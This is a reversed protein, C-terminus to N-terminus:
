ADRIARRGRGAICRAGVRWGADRRMLGRSACYSPREFLEAVYEPMGHQPDVQRRAADWLHHAVFKLALGEPAPWPLPEGTAAKAWGELYALDSALAQLTNEGMGERALHKLTEVDDDTLLGALRDRRDMPLIASLADLELARRTQPDALANPSPLPKM